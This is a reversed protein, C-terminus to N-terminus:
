IQKRQRYHAPRQPKQFRSIIRKLLAKYSLMRIESGAQRATALDAPQPSFTALQYEAVLKEAPVATEPVLEGLNRAREAPTDTAKPRKGLRGLAHNIQLYAKALPSLAAQKAWQRIVAPPRIGARIMGTELAIPFSQFHIRERFRWVLFVLFAALILPGAWLAVDMGTRQSVLPQNRLRDERLAQLEEDLMRRNDDLGGSQPSLEDGAATGALRALVPQSATPEFEVWGIGPFFVEPWAHADRERVLYAGDELREGQAYGVSMRAPIGLSRLLVVEATAYYNCFGQRLDFLFWDVAEQRNPKTPVTETYAINNRLYNTVAMVVDYRTEMGEALDQALQFTRPTISDPLQLYREIVWDPYDGGADRMQAVTVNSVSAQSQYIEGPAIAPDARFATLDTTGDPNRAMEAMAPRSVWLPQPPSFLTSIYTASIFEFTGFWRGEEVPVELEDDQPNFPRSTSVTNLWQNGDYTDYAKARWYLRVNRPIDAPARAIFRQSDTLRNGRGLLISAGYYDSVIGVSSQLSAFANDVRDRVENFPQKMKQFAREAVPVTNALAPATWSFVILLATVFLTFRIFDLGLHPPLATRSQQWRNHHQLYAVRAVLVLSFFLYVALYWARRQILADFSHIAFLALGTPLIAQWARGYRTLNYGAHVTLLWFLASMLVLFLLSDQVVEQNILQNIIVDLRGLMSYIREPWPIGRGMTLGLQWPIAFLGYAMAFLASIRPSFRSQGLALGTLGGLFAISQVLSLYDTWQTVVLRTAATVLAVILLAAAPLDWWRSVSASPNNM